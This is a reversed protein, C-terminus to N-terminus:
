LLSRFEPTKDFVSKTFPCLPIIKLNSKRAFEVIAMMIENGVKQGRFEPNVETHDLIIRDSGAWSYTIQGTQIGNEFAKFAGKTEENFQIIKMM